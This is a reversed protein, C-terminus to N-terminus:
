GARRARVAARLLRRAFADTLRVEVRDPLRLRAGDNSARGALAAARMLAADVPLPRGDPAFALLARPRRAPLVVLIDGGVGERASLLLSVGGGRPSQGVAEDWVIYRVGHVTIKEIPYM